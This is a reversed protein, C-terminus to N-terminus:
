RQHAVMMAASRSSVGLKGYINKLHWKTTSLAIGTQKSIELNPLGEALLEFIEMEKETLLASPNLSVVSPNEVEKFQDEFIDTFIAPLVLRNQSLAKKFVTNLGISEDFVSRSFCVLSYQDIIKKLQNIAIDQNGQLYTVVLLNCRAILARTKIGQRELTSVLKTLIDRAREYRGKSILWYASALSYREKSEQYYGVDRWEENEVWSMLDYKEAISDVLTQSENVVAQRMKEQIIQSQFRDYRGFVLVRNLQDLLKIAKQNDGKIHLLRSFCLYVNAVVETACSSNVCPLLKQCLNIASDIQNQEYYVVAMGTGLNVWVPNEVREDVHRYVDTMYQVAEEGRGMYRDCLIVVLDAYSELFQHGVKSLFVKADNAAILASELQGKYLFIYAIIVLSIARMDMNTHTKTFIDVSIGEFAEADRQFLALVAALFESNTEESNDAQGLLDLYYHAQNFRRSFILAYVLPVILAQRSLLQQDSFGSLVSLTAEFEGLKIWEHCSRELICHYYELDDCIAAHKIAQTYKKSKMFYDSSRRHVQNIYERGEEVLLRNQLFEQLLSHFRFSGLENHDPMLFLGQALLKEILIESDPGIVANCLSANFSEFLASTLVFKRVDDTLYKLVEYGFYNLLEPQNGNFTSLAADGSKIYALLALKAGVVWGETQSYLTSIQEDKMETGSIGEGLQKIENRQLKLDNYDIVLIREELKFRSIPFDPPMRTSIILSVHPPLSVVLESFVATIYPDNILHYDDFMLVLPGEILEFAQILIDIMDGESIYRGSKFFNYFPAEWLPAIKKLENLIKKFISHDATDRITLNLRIVPCHIAHAQWQNLLTTKGFGPAAVILTLPYNRGKDILSLLESRQIEYSM